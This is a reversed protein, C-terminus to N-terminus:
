HKDSLNILKYVKLNILIWFTQVFSFSILRFHLNPDLNVLLNRIFYTLHIYATCIIVLVHYLKYKHVPM